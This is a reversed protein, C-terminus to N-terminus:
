HRTPGRPHGGPIGVRGHITGPRHHPLHHSSHPGYPGYPGFDRRIRYESPYSRGGYWWPWHWWPDSITVVTPIRQENQSQQSKNHLLFGGVLICAIVVAAIIYKM